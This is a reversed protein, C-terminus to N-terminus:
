VGSRVIEGFYKGSSLRERVDTEKQRNVENNCRVRVKHKTSHYLYAQRRLLRGMETQGHVTRFAGGGTTYNRTEGGGRQHQGVANGHVDVRAAPLQNGSCGTIHLEAV